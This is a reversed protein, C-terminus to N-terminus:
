SAKLRQRVHHSTNFESGIIYIRVNSAEPLGFCISGECFDFYSVDIYDENFFRPEVINFKDCGTLSIAILLTLFCQIPLRYLRM